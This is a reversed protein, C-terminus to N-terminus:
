EVDGDTLADLHTQVRDLAAVVRPDASRFGTAIDARLIGVIMDLASTLEGDARVRLIDAVCDVTNLDFLVAAADQGDVDQRGRDYEIALARRMLDLRPDKSM